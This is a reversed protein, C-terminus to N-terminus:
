INCVNPGPFTKDIARGCLRNLHRAGSLCVDDSTGVRAPGGRPKAAEFGAFSGGFESPKIANASRVIKDRTFWECVHWRRKRLSDGKDNAIKKPANTGLAIETSFMMVVEARQTLHFLGM